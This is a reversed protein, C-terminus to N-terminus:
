KPKPGLEVEYGMIDSLVKAWTEACYPGDALDRGRRHREGPLPLRHSMIGGIYGAGRREVDGAQEGPQVFTICFEHLPTYLVFTFREEKKKWWIASETVDDPNDGRWKCLRAMWNCIEQPVKAHNLPFPSWGQQAARIAKLLKDKKM